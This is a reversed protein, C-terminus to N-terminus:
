INPLLADIKLINRVIEETTINDLLIMYVVIRYITWVIKCDNNSKTEESLIMIIIKNM